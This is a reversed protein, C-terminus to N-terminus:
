LVWSMIKEEFYFIPQTIYKLSKTKEIVTKMEHLETQTIIKTMPILFLYMAMYVITGLLIQILSSTLTIRQLALLPIIPIVSAFYIKTTTEVNIEVKFRSKAKKLAYLWTVADSIIISIIMGYIKLLWTLIPALIIILILNVLSIKLNIKTKGLGSFLSGLVFAGLGVLYFEMAFMTLFNPALEYGQGYFIQIIEKAYVMVISAIPLVLMSVYKISMNCFEKIENGNSELKSFAPLLMTGIPTAFITILVTFNMAAQFNGIEYNSTFIALLINRYQMTLGGMLGSLYLPFGYRILMKLNSSINESSGNSHELPRYIKVIFLYAGLLSALLFSLVNGTLAGAISLGMIILIPAIIARTIAQISTTLINYETKDLGIFVSNVTMYVTQLIIIVSTLQIYWTVEPRNLVQRAFLDSFVLCVAFAIFALITKFLLGHVLLKPVRENEGKAKLSASYKIIGTNVGPDVFLLLLNLMVMSITYLGYLESGLIRAIIFVSIALIVTSIINGLTLFFGSRASDELVRKM